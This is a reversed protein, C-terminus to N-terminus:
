AEKEALAKIKEIIMTTSFGDIETPNIREGVVIQVGHKKGLVERWSIDNRDDNVVLMDPKLLRFAEDMMFVLYDEREKVYYDLFAYDVPKLFDIMKLRLRQDLIPRNPGKQRHIAADSGVMVVLVDGLSKSRELFLAHGAHTLDFSGAALVIKQGRHRERIKPLDEFPVIM